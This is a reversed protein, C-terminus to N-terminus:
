KLAAAQKLCEARRAECWDTWRSWTPVDILGQSKAFDCGGQQWRLVPNALLGLGGTQCKTFEEQCLGAAKRSRAEDGYLTAPLVAITLPILVILFARKIMPGQAYEGGWASMLDVVLTLRM